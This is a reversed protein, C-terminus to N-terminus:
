TRKNTAVQMKLIRRSLYPVIYYIGIAVFVGILADLLFHQKVFVTSTAILIALFLYIRKYSGKEWLYFGIILSHMVHLSPFYLGNPDHNYIWTLIDLLFGQEQDFLPIRSNVSISITFSLIYTCISAIALSLSLMKEKMKKMPIFIPILILPGYLVYPIVMPIVLPVSLDIWLQPTWWHLNYDMSVRSFFTYTVFQFVIYLAYCPNFTIPIKNYLINDINKISKNLKAMPKKM